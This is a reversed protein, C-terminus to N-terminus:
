KFVPLLSILRWGNVGPEEKYVWEQTDRLSKVKTTSHFHYEVDVDVTAKRKTEDYRIGLVRADVIKVNKAVRLRDLSDERLPNAYFASAADFDSWRYLQNYKTLSEDLKGRLDYVYNSCATLTIIIMFGFFTKRM